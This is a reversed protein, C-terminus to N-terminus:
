VAAPLKFWKNVKVALAATSPFQGAVRLCDNATALRRLRFQRFTKQRAGLLGSDPLVM